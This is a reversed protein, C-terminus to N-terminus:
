WKYVTLRNNMKGIITGLIRSKLTSKKMQESFSIERLLKLKENLPLLEAGSTTGWGFKASTNKVTDHMKEKMMKQLMLEVVLFGSDFNQTIQNLLTKVQEKSFYMFLGEAIIITTREKPIAKLWDTELINGAVMHERETEEYIKKRVAISDPLDVNFWQIRGNDVREFRNDLGCGMNICVADPYKKLLKRVTDDFLITRAVVCEHTVMKDFKKTDVGLTDTIEVAKKDLIRPNKSRTENARVALPILATEQVDGMKLEM